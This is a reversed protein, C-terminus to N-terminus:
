RENEHGHDLKWQEAPLRVDVPAPDVRVDVDARQDVLGRDLLHLAV